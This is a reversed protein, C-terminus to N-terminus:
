TSEMFILGNSVSRHTMWAVDGDEASVVEQWIRQWSYYGEIYDNRMKILERTYVTNM